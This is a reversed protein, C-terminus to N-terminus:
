NELNLWYRTYRREGTRRLAGMETLDQLDRTATARSTGTLSIYNEASLGGKFGEPGERFMRAIGKAQRENFKDRHQDYFHAKGIFFGVRDLTVTQATLVTAAFWELWPTVDLTKQHRELQDYYVKREREITFALAILSPQGISQALAKEALARGLRGNGDEFPHISEFYLHSLGARTLPPLPESGGPATKNFWVAYRDMESPVQGSPPAEFHVTPRDLRGSVIQMADAHQRYAGVTELHRDHSLLMDHWRYLTEHTLPEAYTSYVDVMMEAVGQERPKTPYADPTLGFQRRLSSQVSRRDLIEGEIASTKMAEDSLLDIRFQDREVPNVHQVTGLIKGSSVLFREEIPTLVAADYRFEPWDPQQWNWSM